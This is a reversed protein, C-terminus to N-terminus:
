RTYPAGPRPALAADSGYSSSDGACRRALLDDYVQFDFQPSSLQPGAPPDVSRVLDRVADFTPTSGSEALLTLAAIVDRESTAAALHRLRVYEKDARRPLQAVLPDYAVRFATTPFLADRFRDQAFAGPKRVLSWILHREDIHSGFRGHLRPLTLTLTSGVYCELTEPRVRVTVSVGILRSPVSYTNHLVRITSFRTVTVPLERCPHLPTSPLPRLTDRETAWRLQRTQNRKRALEQLWAVYSAREALDRSSRARLAQDAAEKFRHHVQEGAGNEHAEGATNTSPPMGYRPM